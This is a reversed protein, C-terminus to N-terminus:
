RSRLVHSRDAVRRRRTPPTAGAARSGAIRIVQKGRRGGAEVARHAEAVDSLPHVGDVVPKIAGERVLDALKTLLRTDPKHSFFRVRRGGHVCSGAFYAMSRLPRELDPVIAMMRGGRARRRRWGAPNSGVTDLIVDFPDLDEPWTTAYDLAVDAGHERVFGLNAESALGTM